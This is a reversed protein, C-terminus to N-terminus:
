PATIPLESLPLCPRPPQPIGEGHGSDRAAPMRGRGVHERRGPSRRSQWKFGIAIYWTLLSGYVRPLFPFEGQSEAKTFGPGKNVRVGPALAGRWRDGCSQGRCRGWHNFGVGVEM